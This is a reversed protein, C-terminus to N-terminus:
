CPRSKMKPPRASTSTSASSAISAILTRPVYRSVAASAGPIAARPRPLTTLTVVIAASNPMAPAPAYPAEFAATTASVRV